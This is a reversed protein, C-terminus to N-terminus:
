GSLGTTNSAYDKVWCLTNVLAMQDPTRCKVSLLQPSCVVVALCQARSIAVNLRNKSYLFEIDRPLEDGSSTAMSVIVVAAEQGQFKDVTGVRAGGPLVGQLLNVQMNYPSVVLIDEVRLPRRGGDEDVFHQRLLEKHLRMVVEAEEPSSQARGQHAVPVYRIGVQGLEPPADASLELRRRGAGDSAQLRGDYVAQSIFDCVMPHMRWSRGLFVGEAPPITARGDLLYDLVSEGSRGPHTGQTPQSLQMQDGLLVIRRAGIGMAILNGLSVQGAEDIFLFDLPSEVSLAAFAWATGAFLRHTDLDFEGVKTGNDFCAAEFYSEPRDATAKKFGRFSVGETSAVDVIGELLNHIAKHSNSAVGVSYGARLLSVIVHSGTYTKGAGPPGQVVLHSDQLLAMARAIDATGCDPDVIPEGSAIGQVAPLRKALLGKVASFRGDGALVSEAFLQVRERLVRDALPPAPGLSLVDPLPESRKGIKLRVIGADHDVEHLTIAKGSDIRTANSGTRLKTEQAPYRYTYVLSEKESYPAIAPDRQMGGICEGDEILEQVDMQLCDFMKWWQPKQERRHFDLLQAALVRLRTEGNEEPTHEDIGTLLAAKLGALRDEISGADDVGSPTEVGVPPLRWEQGAPRISKLWSHLGETSEVDDRNYAEIGDLLAPDGTQRWREYFVISAGANQVDGAREERYFHEINKISYGPESVRLGERVVKYLDVLRGSRFLDDVERERTGHLSMLKGLATKEYAAYHYIHAAPHRRLHDGVFDIFREFAIKEEGRSHAWFPKFVFAGSERWGLGFLYELGGQGLPDGEMDFYLDHPDPMPLRRFGREQDDPQALLEYARSGSERERLQLEAQHRLVALTETALKPVVAVRDLKALAELTHIGAHNLKRVQSGRINAVLSLHDDKARREACLQSWSCQACKECPDPYTAGQESAMTALFRDRLTNFYRIYDAVRYSLRQGNGLVVHMSAPVRGQWEGLIASYFALQVLFKAKPSRSLKTDVVEYSFAGLQSPTEVRELFDAFGALVGDQLAAQYVVDHGEALAARTRTVQADLPGRPESVDIINRGAARLSDLYAHEHRIGHEQILQNVEDDAARPLPTDLHVRDLASLHECELFNVIDSASYILVGNIKRVRESWSKTPKVRGSGRCWRMARLGDGHGNSSRPTEQPPRAFGGRIQVFVSGGSISAIPM